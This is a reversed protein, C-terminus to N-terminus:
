RVSLKVKASTKAAVKSSGQYAAKVTWTGKALRPLTATAKGKKLTVTRTVTKKGRTATVKVKGSPTTGTASVKVTVKAKASTSVKKKALSVKATASAKAVKVTTRLSAAEYSADGAYSVTLTRKAGVPLASSLKVTAKGNVLKASGVTKKGYKVAVKGTAAPKGTATKVGVKVSGAYKVAKPLSLAAAAKVVPQETPAATPTATPAATPTATPTPSPTPEPQPAPEAFTIPTYTDYGGFTSGGGAYTYIGFNGSAAKGADTLSVTFTASFTGNPRLEIGGRAAGGITAIDGASVAWFQQLVKRDTSPAGGAYSWVDAFRGFIVYTGSPKDKLPARSGIAHGPYFGAGEVTVTTEAAPDLNTLSAPSTVQVSPATRYTLTLADLAAGPTLFNQLADSGEQTLTLGSATVTTVGAATSVSTTLSDPTAGITVDDATTTGPTGTTAGEPVTLQLDAVVSTGADGTVVKVDSLTITFFHTPFDYTVSGQTAVTSTGADSATSYVPFVYPRTEGTGASPADDFSAPAGVVIREGLPKTNMPAGVYSRFNQRFGWRLSSELPAPEIDATASPAAVAAGAFALAATLLAGVTRRGLLTTSM